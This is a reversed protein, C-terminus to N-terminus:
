RWMDYGYHRPRRNSARAVSDDLSDRTGKKGRSSIPLGFDTILHHLWRTGAASRFRSSGSTRFVRISVPPCKDRVRTTHRHHSLFSRGLGSSPSNGASATSSDYLSRGSPPIRLESASYYRTTTGIPVLLRRVETSSATLNPQDPSPGPQPPPPHGNTAAM